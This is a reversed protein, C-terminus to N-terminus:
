YEVDFAGETIQYDIGNSTARGTFTGKLRTATKETITVTGTTARAGFDETNPTYILQANDAATGTLPYSGVTASSKVSVTIEDDSANAVGISIFEQGAIQTEVTFIDTDVFEIGNVKASFTDSTPNTSTYPLNTFVGNTFQKPAVTENDFDSWYGTFRFTGSITKNVTNISTIIVSGTDATDDTPHNGWYGYESTAPTYTVLNQNAPYTGTSTGELIFGFNEGNSRYANIIISGGSIYVITSSSSFTQGDFDAKFLGTEVGGGPNEGGDGPNLVIASDIPENDDCSTFAFATFLLLFASLYKIKSMIYLTQNTKTEM